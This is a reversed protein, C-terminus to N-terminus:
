MYTLICVHTYGNCIYLYGHVNVHKFNHSDTLHWTIVCVCVYIYIHKKLFSAVIFEFSYAGFGTTRFSCTTTPQSASRWFLIPRPRSTIRHTTENSSADTHTSTFKHTHSHSHAHTPQLAVRHVKATLLAEESSSPVHNQDCEYMHSMVSEYTVHHQDSEINQKMAAQTQTHTHPHSHSHPHPLPNCRSSFKKRRMYSMSWNMHSIVWEYTFHRIWVHSSENMHSMVWAHTVHNTWIHCSENIYILHSHQASKNRLTSHARTESIYILHFVSKNVLIYWVFCSRVTSKSEKMQSMVREYAAYSMWIHCSENM